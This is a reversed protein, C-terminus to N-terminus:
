TGGLRLIEAVHRTGDFGTLDFVTYAQEVRPM